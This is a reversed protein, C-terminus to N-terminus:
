DLLSAPLSKGREPLGKSPAVSSGFLEIEIQPRAIQKLFGVLLTVIGAVVAGTLSQIIFNDVIRPQRLTGAGTVMTAALIQFFCGSVAGSVVGILTHGWTGLSYEKAITATAHAGFIGGVIQIVLNTFSWTM